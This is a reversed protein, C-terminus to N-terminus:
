SAAGDNGCARQRHQSKLGAGLLWGGLLLWGRPHLLSSDLRGLGSLYQWPLRQRPLWTCCLLRLRCRWALHLLSQSPRVDHRMPQQDVILAFDLEGLKGL